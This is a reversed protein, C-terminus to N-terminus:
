QTSRGDAPLPSAASQLRRGSSNTMEMAFFYVVALPWFASVARVLSRFGPTSWRMLWSPLRLARDTLAPDAPLLLAFVVSATALLMAARAQAAAPARLLLALLAFGVPLALWPLRQTWTLPDTGYVRLGSSIRLVVALLALAAVTLLITRVPVQQTRNCRPLILGTLILTTIVLFHAIVSQMPASLAAHLGHLLYDPLWSEGPWPTVPANVLLFQQPAFQGLLWAGALSFAFWRHSRESHAGPLLALVQEQWQALRPVREVGVALLAGLVGGGGNTALDILSPVRRPLYSQLSEMGFSLLISIVSALLLAPGPRMWARIWLVTVYGFGAYALVNVVLDGLSYFRPLGGFIWSFTSPRRLAWGQFPYLSLYIIALLVLLWPLHRLVTRRPPSVDSLTM